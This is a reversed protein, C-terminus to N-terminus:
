TVVSLRGAHLDALAARATPATSAYATIGAARLVQMAKPGVAGSIVAQVGLSAVFEATRIGAGHEATTATPNAHHTVAESGTTCVVLHHTRGFRPDLAADLDTGSTSIAIRMTTSETPVPPRRPPARRAQNARRACGVRAGRWRQCSPMLGQVQDIAGTLWAALVADATGTCGDVVALGADALHQGLHRTIAGCILTSVGEDVLRACWRLADTGPAEIERQAVVTGQDIDVLRLRPCFDAVTALNSNWITLAVLV